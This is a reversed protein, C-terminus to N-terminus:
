VILGVSNINFAIQLELLTVQELNIPVVRARSRLEERRLKVQFNVNVFLM